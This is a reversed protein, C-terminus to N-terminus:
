VRTEAVFAQSGAASEGRALENEVHEEDQGGFLIFPPGDEGGRHKEKKSKKTRRWTDGWFWAEQGGAKTQKGDRENELGLCKHREWEKQKEPDQRDAM